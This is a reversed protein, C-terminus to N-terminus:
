KEKKSIPCYESNLKFHSALPSDVFNAKSINFIELFREVYTEQSLWLKGYKRKYSIKMNLIQKALVLDKM